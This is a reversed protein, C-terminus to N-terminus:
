DGNADLTFMAGFECTVNKASEDLATGDFKLEVYDKTKDFYLTGIKESGHLLELATNESFIVSADIKLFQKVFDGNLIYDTVGDGAVPISFKGELWFPEGVTIESIIPGAPATRLHIIKDTILYGVERAEDNLLGIEPLEDLEEEEAEIAGGELSPEDKPLSEPPPAEIEKGGDEEGELLPEGEQLPAPADESEETTLNGELLQEGEQLQQSTETIPNDDRADVAMSPMLMNLTMVFILLLSLFSRKSKRRM